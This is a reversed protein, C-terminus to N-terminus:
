VFYEHDRATFSLVSPNTLIKMCSSVHKSDANVLGVIGNVIKLGKVTGFPPQSCDSTTRSAAAERSAKSSPRLRQGELRRRVQDNGRKMAGRRSKCQGDDQM